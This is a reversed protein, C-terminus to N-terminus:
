AASKVEVKKVQAPAPKPVSVKLVGNAINAKIAGVDVGAPLELSRSFAGYSREVLHYNKSKDKEEKEAKKEGRITLVNDAVNVQVDKEELGPLEATLEIEKDTETVDMRPTLDPVGATGVAPFGFSGGFTPFGRTFEDFVRDIQRQLTEFPNVDRRAVNRDRGIPLLSNLTMIDEM